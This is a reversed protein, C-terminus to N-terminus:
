AAERRTRQRKLWEILAAPTVDGNTAESVELLTDTSFRGEGKLLKYVTPYTFPRGECFDVVSLAEAKLWTKLPNKM